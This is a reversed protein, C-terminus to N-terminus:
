KHRQFNITDKLCQKSPGSKFVRGVEARQSFYVIWKFTIYNSIFHPRYSGRAEIKEFSQIKNKQEEM